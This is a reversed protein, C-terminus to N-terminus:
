LATSHFRNCVIVPSPFIPFLFNIFWWQLSTGADHNMVTGIYINM